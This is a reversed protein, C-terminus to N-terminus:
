RKGNIKRLRETRENKKLFEAVQAPVFMEWEKGEAIAKRIKTGENKEREFFPIPKVRIGAARFLKQTLEHNSYVVDFPPVLSKVHAVWKSHDHIDPVPVVTCRKALGEAKLVADIMEKREDASFPNVPTGSFQASGIMIIAEDCESLIHKLAALHGNHFPQFRGVFLARMGKM